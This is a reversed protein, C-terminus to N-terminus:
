EPGGPTPQPSAPAAPPADKIPVIHALASDPLPRVQDHRLRAVAAAALGGDARSAPTALVLDSPVLVMARLNAANAGSPRWVGARTDPDTGDCGALAFLLPVMFTRVMMM